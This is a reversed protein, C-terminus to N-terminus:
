KEEKQKKTFWLMRKKVGHENADKCSIRYIDVHKRWQSPMRDMFIFPEAEGEVHILDGFELGFKKELDRILAVYGPKTKGGSATITHLCYSTTTIIGILEKKETYPNQPLFLLLLLLILFRIRCALSAKGKKFGAPSRVRSAGLYERQDKVLNQGPANMMLWATPSVRM